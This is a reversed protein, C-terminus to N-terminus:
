VFMMKGHRDRRVSIILPQIGRSSTVIIIFNAVSTELHSLSRNFALAILVACLSKELYCSDSVRPLMPAETRSLSLSLSM